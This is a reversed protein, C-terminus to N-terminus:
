NGINKEEVQLTKNQKVNLGTICKTLSKKKKQKQKLKNKILNKIKCPSEPHSLPLSDGTLAPSM